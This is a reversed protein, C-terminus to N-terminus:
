IVANGVHVDRQVKSVCILRQWHRVMHNGVSRQTSFSATLPQLDWFVVEGFDMGAFLRKLAMNYVSATIRNDRVITPGLVKDKTTNRQMLDADPQVGGLQCIDLAPPDDEPAM